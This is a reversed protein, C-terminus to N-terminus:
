KTRPETLQGTATALDAPVGPNWRPQEITFSRPNRGDLELASPLLLPGCATTALVRLARTRGDHPVHVIRAVTGDPEVLLVHEARLDLGRGALRVAIARAGETDHEPARRLSTGPAFLMVPVFVQEILERLMGRASVRPRPPPGGGWILEADAATDIVAVKWATAFAGPRLTHHNEARFLGRRRDWTHHVDGRWCTFTELDALARGGHRQVVKAAIEVADPERVAGDARQDGRCSASAVGRWYALEDVRWAASLGDWVLAGAHARLWSTWNNKSTDADRSGPVLDVLLQAVQARRAGDLQPPLALLAQLDSPEIGLQGTTAAVRARRDAEAPAPEAGVPASHRVIPRDTVFRAAHRVTRLLWARGAPDAPVESVPLHFLNGQRWVAPLGEPAALEHMEPGRCEAPMAAIEGAGPLGWRAAFREGTGGLLLTPRDWREFPGLPLREDLPADTPWDVLVVDALRLREPACDARAVARVDIGDDKLLRLWGDTAATPGDAVLIAALRIAAPPDPPAADQARLWAPLVALFALPLRRTAM